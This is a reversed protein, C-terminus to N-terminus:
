FPGNIHTKWRISMLAAHGILQPGQKLSERSLRNFHFIQQFNLARNEGLSGMLVLM